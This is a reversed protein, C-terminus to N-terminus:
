IIEKKAKPSLQMGADLLHYNLISLPEIVLPGTSCTHQEKMMPLMM